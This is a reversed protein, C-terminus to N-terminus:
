KQKLPNALENLQNRAGSFVNIDVFGTIGPIHGRSDYQWFTWNKITSWNAPMLVDRIWIAYDAFNGKIYEAYRDYDTYIIPKMGYHQELLDLFVKIEHLMVQHDKGCVELDLVPPLMGVDKPVMSIYNNAQETGTRDASYFHYAGRLLGQEKTERWNAQFFADKFNKGETAKIFVFSYKGTQTVSKWDIQQQYSSVDLGQVHYSSAFLTNPWIIGTYLLTALTLLCLLTLLAPLFRRRSMKIYRKISLRLLAKRAVNDHVLLLRFSFIQGEKQIDSESNM